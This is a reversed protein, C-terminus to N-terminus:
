SAGGHAYIRRAMTSMGPIVTNSNESNIGKLSYGNM